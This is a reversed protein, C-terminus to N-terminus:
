WPFNTSQENQSFVASIHTIKNLGGGGSSKSVPNVISTTSSDSATTTTTTSNSNSNTNTNSLNTSQSCHYIRIEFLGSIPFLQDSQLTSMMVAINQAYNSAHGFPPHLTWRIQPNSSEATSPNKYSLT